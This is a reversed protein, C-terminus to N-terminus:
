FLHPDLQKNMVLGLDKEQDGSQLVSHDQKARGTGPLLGRCAATRCCRKNLPVQSGWMERKEVRSKTPPQCVGQCLVFGWPSENEAASLHKDIFGLYGTKVLRFVVKMGLRQIKHRLDLLPFAASLSPVDTM